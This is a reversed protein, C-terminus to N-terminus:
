DEKGDPEVEGKRWAINVRILIKLTWFDNGTLRRESDARHVIHRHSSVRSM